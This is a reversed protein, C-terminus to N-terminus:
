AKLSRLMALAKARKSTHRRVPISPAGVRDATAGDGEAM